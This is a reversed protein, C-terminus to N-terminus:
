SDDCIAASWMYQTIEQRFYSATGGMFILFLFWGVVLGSGTHLWAMSQRFNNKM